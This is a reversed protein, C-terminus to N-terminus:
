RSGRRDGVDRESPRGHRLEDGRVGHEVGDLVAEEIEVLRCPRGAGRDPVQEGVGRPKRELALGDEGLGSGTPDVRIGPKSM